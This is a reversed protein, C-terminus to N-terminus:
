CGGIIDIFEFSFHIWQNQWVQKLPSVEEKLLWLATLPASELFQELKLSHQEAELKIERESTKECSFKECVRHADCYAHNLWLIDMAKLARTYLKYEEFGTSLLYGWLAGCKRRYRSGVDSVFLFTLYRELCLNKGWRCPIM